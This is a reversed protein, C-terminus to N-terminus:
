SLDISLIHVRWAQVDKTPRDTQHHYLYYTSRSELRYITCAPKTYDVIALTIELFKFQPPPWVFTQPPTFMRLGLNVNFVNFILFFQSAGLSPPHRREVAPNKVGRPPTYLHWQSYSGQWYMYLTRSGTCIKPIMSLFVWVTWVQIGLLPYLFFLM